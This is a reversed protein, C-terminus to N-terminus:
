AFAAEPEDIDERDMEGPDPQMSVMAYGIWFLVGSIGAVAALVPIAVALYSRRLVGFAFLLLQVASVAMLIVGLNQSRDM